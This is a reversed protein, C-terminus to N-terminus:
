PLRLIDNIAIKSKTKSDVYKTIIAANLGFESTKYLTGPIVVAEPPIIGYNITGTKVDYIKTSASLHLGPAIVAGQSVLIGSTITASAGVFVQDEIIVPEEEIPELVGGIVANAGIHVEDGIYACSGITANIDIMTKQGIRAGINIFSPMIISQLGLYVGYRIIAGPVVRLQAKEFDIATWSQFKLPIKDFYGGKLFNNPSIKFYLLIAKKIWQNIIWKNNNKECVSLLGSDLHNITDLITNKINIDIFNESWAKEIINKM